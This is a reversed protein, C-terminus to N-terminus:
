YFYRVHKNCFLCFAILCVETKAELHAGKDILFNVIKASGIAAAWHLPM